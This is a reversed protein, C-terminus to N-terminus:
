LEAHLWFTLRYFVASPLHSLYVTNQQGHEHMMSYLNVPLISCFMKKNVQIRAWLLKTPNWNGNQIRFEARQNMIENDYVISSQNGEWGHQAFSISDVTKFYKPTRFSATVFSSCFGFYILVGFLHHLTFYFAHRFTNNWRSFRLALGFTFLCASLSLRDDIGMKWKTVTCRPACCAQKCWFFQGFLFMIWILNFTHM